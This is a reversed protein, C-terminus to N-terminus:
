KWRRVRHALVEVGGTDGSRFSGQIFLVEGHKPPGGIRKFFRDQVFVSFIIDEERGETGNYWRENVKLDIFKCGNGANRIASVSGVLIAYATDPGLYSQTM